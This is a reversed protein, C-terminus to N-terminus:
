LAELARAELNSLLVFDADEMKEGRLTIRARCDAITNIYEREKITLEPGYEIKLKRIIQKKLREYATGDIKPPYHPHGKQFRHGLRKPQDGKLKGNVTSNISM